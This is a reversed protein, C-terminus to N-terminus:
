GATLALVHEEALPFEALLAGRSGLELHSFEFGPSVTCGALTWRGGPAPMAGFWSHTPIVLQPSETSLLHVRAAAGPV